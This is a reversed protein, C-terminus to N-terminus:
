AITRLKNLNTVCNKVEEENTIDCSIYNRETKKKIDIKIVNFKLKKFHSVLSKGILGESGTILINKKIM